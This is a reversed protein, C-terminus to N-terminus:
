SCRAVILTAILQLQYWYMTYTSLSKLARERNVNFTEITQLWDLTERYNYRKLETLKIGGEERGGDGSAGEPRFPSM